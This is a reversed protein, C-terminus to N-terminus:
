SFPAYLCTPDRLAFRLFRRIGRVWKQGTLRHVIHLLQIELTRQVQLIVRVFVIQHGQPVLPALFGGQSSQGVFAHVGNQVKQHIGPLPHATRFVQFHTVTQIKSAAIQVRTGQALEHSDAPIEPYLRDENGQLPGPAVPDHLVQGTQQFAEQKTQLGEFRLLLEV